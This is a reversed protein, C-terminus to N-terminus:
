FKWVEILKGQFLKEAKNEVLGLSLAKLREKPYLEEKTFEPSLIIYCVNNKKGGCESGIRELPRVPNEKPVYFSLNYQSYVIEESPITKMGLHLEKRLTESTEITNQNSTEKGLTLPFNGDLSNKAFILGISLFLLWLPLPKRTRIWVLGSFLLFPILSYSYYSYVEHHWPRSSFAHFLYILSIGILEPIMLVIGSGGSILLELYTKFSKSFGEVKKYSSSYERLLENSWSITNAESSLSPFIWVSLIFYCGCFILAALSVSRLLVSKKGWLPFKKDVLYFNYLEFVWISFLFCSLYVAIDEKVSLFLVLSIWFGIKNRLSREGSKLRLYFHFFLGSFPLVLVEFHYSTILRYIYLQNLLCIFILLSVSYSSLDKNQNEKFGERYFLRSWIFVGLMGYFYSGFAYGWREPFLLSFPVYALLGPAFHHLLYSGDGSDSYYSSHFGNGRTIERIVEDM